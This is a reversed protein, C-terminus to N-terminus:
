SSVAENIVLLHHSCKFSLLGSLVSRLGTLLEERLITQWEPPDTPSCVRCRYQIDEPLYSFLQYMEDTVVSVFWTLM